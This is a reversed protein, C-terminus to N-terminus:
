WICCEPSHTRFGVQAACYLQAHYLFHLDNALTHFLQSHWKDAM